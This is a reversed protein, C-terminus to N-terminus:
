WVSKDGHVNTIRMRKVTQGPIWEPVEDKWPHGHLIERRSVLWLSEVEDYEIVRVTVTRPSRLERLFDRQNIPDTPYESAPLFVKISEQVAWLTADGYTTDTQYPNKDRAVRVDIDQGIALPM